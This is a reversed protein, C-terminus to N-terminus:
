SVGSMLIYVRKKYCIKKNKKSKKKNVKRKRKPKKKYTVCRPVSKGKKNTKCTFKRCRKKGGVLSGGNGAAMLASLATQGLAKTLPHRLVKGALRKLKKWKFGGSMLGRRLEYYGLGSIMNADLVDNKSLIGIRKSASNQYISFIGPIITILYFTINQSHDSYNTIDAEVQLNYTGIMGAAEDERLGIDSGFELCLVSGIGSIAQVESGVSTYSPVASWENFALDVGNKRSIDYLQQQSANSLLANQNNWNIRIGEISMYSDTSDFSFDSDSERVLIYLFRPISNLQINNSIVTTSALSALSGFNTPYRQIENYSYQIFPPMIFNLGPTVYKFLMSPQELQVDIDYTLENPAATHSWIKDLDNDWTINIEIKQLGIFGEDRVGGFLLPSLYLEECLTAQIVVNDPDSVDISDYSFAGRPQSADPGSNAYGELPNRNSSNAGALDSYQQSQDKLMPSMSMERENLDRENNHYLLLPKIVDNMNISVSQGNLTVDLTQMISALPSQRFASYGTQYINSGDSTTGSITITVPQRLLFRRSVFTAPNPPPVSFQTSSNSFTSSTFTRETTEVGGQLVAFRKIQDANVIPDLIKVLEPKFM